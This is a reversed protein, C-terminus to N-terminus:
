IVKMYVKKFFFCVGDLLESPMPASFSPISTSFSPPFFVVM